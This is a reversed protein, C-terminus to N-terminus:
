NNPLKVEVCWSLGVFNTLTQPATQQSTGNRELAALAKLTSKAFPLPNPNPLARDKPQLPWIRALRLLQWRVVKCWLCCLSLRALRAINGPTARPPAQASEERRIPERLAALLNPTKIDMLYAWAKWVESAESPNTALGRHAARMYAGIAPLNYARAM